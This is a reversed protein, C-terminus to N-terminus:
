WLIMKYFSIGFCNCGLFEESPRSQRKPQVQLFVAIEKSKQLLFMYNEYAFAIEKCEFDFVV